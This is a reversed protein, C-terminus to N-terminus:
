AAAGGDAEARGVDNGSPSGLGLLREIAPSLEDETLLRYGARALAREAAPLVRPDDNHPSVPVAPARRMREVVAGARSGLGRDANAFLGGPGEERPEHEALIAAITGVLRATPSPVLLAALAGHDLRLRQAVPDPAGGRAEQVAPILIREEIGIHRLLEERFRAWGSPDGAALAVLALDFLKELRRHEAGM